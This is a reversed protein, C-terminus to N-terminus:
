DEVSLSLALLYEPFIIKDSFEMGIM